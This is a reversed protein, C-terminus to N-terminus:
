QRGSRIPEIKTEDINRKRTHAQLPYVGHTKKTKNPRLNFIKVLWSADTPLHIYQQRYKKEGRKKTTARACKTQDKKVTADTMTGGHQESRKKNNHTQPTTGVSPRLHFM